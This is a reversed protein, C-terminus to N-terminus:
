CNKTETQFSCPRRCKFASAGFKAHYFCLPSQNENGPSELRRHPTLRRWPRFTGRSRSRSRAGCKMDELQKSLKKIETRLYNVEDSDHTVPAAAGPTRLSCVEPVTKIEAIKDALKSLETLDASSVSLIAQVTTPLRELWITKLFEDTVSSKALEKMERLLASPRKDGLTLESLLKRIKQSESDSFENILREKLAVYKNDAPPNLILDSVASLTETDISALVTNYKTVDSTVQAVEFNAEVQVFWIAINGRWLPPIKVSVRSIQPDEDQPM